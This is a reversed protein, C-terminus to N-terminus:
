PVAVGEAPESAPVAGSRERLKVILEDMLELEGADRLITIQQEMWDHKRSRFVPM